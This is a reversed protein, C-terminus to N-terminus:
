FECGAGPYRCVSICRVPYVRLGQPHASLLVVCQRCRNGGLGGGAIAEWRQDKAMVTDDEFLLATNSQLFM